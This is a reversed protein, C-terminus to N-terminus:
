KQARAVAILEPYSRDIEDWYAALEAGTLPDVNLGAETLSQQFAPDQGIKEFAATLTDVVPQPTGARIVFGYRILGDVPHNQEVLTPVDPYAPDREEGFVGLLRAVAM